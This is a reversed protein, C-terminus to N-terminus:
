LWHDFTVAAYFLLVFEIPVRYRTAPFYVAHAVVFTALVCGLIV